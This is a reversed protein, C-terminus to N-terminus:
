GQASGVVAPRWDRRGLRRRPRPPPRYVPRIFRGSGAAAAGEAVTEGELSEVVWLGRTNEPTCGV